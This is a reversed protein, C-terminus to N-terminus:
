VSKKLLKHYEMITIMQKIDYSYEIDGNDNVINLTKKVSLSVNIDDTDELYHRMATEVSHNRGSADITLQEIQEKVPKHENKKFSNTASVKRLQTQTLREGFYKLTLKPILKSYYNCKGKNTESNINLLYDTDFTMEKYLNSEFDNLKIKLSDGKKNSKPIIITNTKSNMHHEEETYNRIKVIALDARPIDNNILISFIIAKHNM